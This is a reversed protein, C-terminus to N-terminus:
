PNPRRGGTVAAELGDRWCRGGVRLDLGAAWRGAVVCHRATCLVEDGEDAVKSLVGGVPGRTMIASWLSLAKEGGGRARCAGGRSGSGITSGM